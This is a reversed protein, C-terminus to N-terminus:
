ASILGPQNWRSEEGYNLKFSSVELLKEFLEAVMPRSFYYGQAEDCNQAKLFTLQAETEVGEAVVRKNLGKAMAIMTSVITADGSDTTINHVFSQDVKLADIPLWKLYGLSSYGTGFDDLSLRVGITKLETLAAVTSKAHQMLAAETLELDLYRADLSSDRLIGRLGEIFGESRFELSSINVSVPIVRWGSDIWERAQRCTERLVWHGIPLILGCEEAIPIFQAPTILGQDPHQWRVLAEAGVIEGTHLSIKPQYHLEFEDRELAHNLEAEVSQRRIARVNMQKKFFQYSNPGHKKAQYMATDANALLTEADDGDEPYTSIGISATVRLDYPDCTYSAALATLIKTATIGADAARKIETLLVVFEDGGQRGVTDSGRVASVLRKAVARLLKDGVGHGLSDNIHKFGDLDLFLVAVQTGNRHATAIAQCLRDKLLTRNPLDTLSDHHALHSMELSMAKSVSVDHFVIVAGAIMGSRAHIPATSDEIASEHGDRRILICNAALGVTKNGQVALAVPDASPERTNADIIQFVDALPRGMAEASTWGTMEEAVVNLYTVNGLVDASLVGDGISNLTVQAREREAFLEEEATEREVMNRFARGFSYSDIHGELLYDKAGHRMAEVAIVDDAAGALVLIPIGPAAQLIKDFTELGESDPLSMSAFIAWVGNRRLREVAQALTRFWEPQFSGDNAAFAAAHFAEAHAPDNDILLLTRLESMNQDSPSHDGNQLKEPGAEAADGM